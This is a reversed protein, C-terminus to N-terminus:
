WQDRKAQRMERELQRRMGASTAKIENRTQRIVLRSQAKHLRVKVQDDLLARQDPRSAMEHLWIGLLLFGTCILFVGLVLMM